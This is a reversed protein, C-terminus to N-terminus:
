LLLVGYSLRHVFLLANGGGIRVGGVCGLAASRGFKAIVVVVQDVIAAANNDVHLGRCRTEALFDHVRCLCRGALDPSLNRILKFRTSPATMWKSTQRAWGM